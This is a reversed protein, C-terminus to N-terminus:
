ISIQKLFIIKNKIKLLIIIITIKKIKKLIKNFKSIKITSIKNKIIFLLIKMNKIKSFTITKNINNILYIIHYISNNNINKFTIL